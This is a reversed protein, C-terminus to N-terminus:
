MAIDHTAIVVTGHDVRFVAVSWSLLRWLLWYPLYQLPPLLSAALLKPYLASGHDTSAM